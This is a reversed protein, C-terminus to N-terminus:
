RLAGVVVVFVAIAVLLYEIVSDKHLTNKKSHILGNGAIYSVFFIIAAALTIDPFVAIVMIFVSSIFLSYITHFKLTPVHHKRM